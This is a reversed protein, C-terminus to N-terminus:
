LFGRGSGKELDMGNEDWGHGKQTFHQGEQSKSELNDEDKWLRRLHWRKWSPKESGELGM